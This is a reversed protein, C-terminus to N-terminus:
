RNRPVNQQKILAFITMDITCFLFHPLEHEKNEILTKVFKRAKIGGGDLKKSKFVSYRRDGEEIKIGAIKM